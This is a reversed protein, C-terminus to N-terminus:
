GGFKNILFLGKKDRMYNERVGPKKTTVQVRRGLSFRTERPKSIMTEAQLKAQQGQGFRTHGHKWPKTKNQKEKSTSKYTSFSSKRQDSHM